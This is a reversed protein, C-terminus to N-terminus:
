TSTTLIIQTGHSLRLKPIDLIMHAAQQLTLADMSSNTLTDCPGTSSVAAVDGPGPGPQVCVEHTHHLAGPPVLQSCLKTSAAAAVDPAAREIPALTFSTLYSPEGSAHQPPRHLQSGALSGRRRKRRQSPM